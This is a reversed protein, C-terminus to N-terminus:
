SPQSRSTFVLFIGIFLSITMFTVLYMDINFGCSVDGLIGNVPQMYSDGCVLRGFFAPLTSYSFQKILVYILYSAILLIGTNRKNM